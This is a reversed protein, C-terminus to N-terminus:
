PHYCAVKRITFGSGYSYNSSTTWGANQLNTVGTSNFFQVGRGINQDLWAIYSGPGTETYTPLRWGSGLSQCQTNATAANVSSDSLTHNFYAWQPYNSTLPGSDASVSVTIATTGTGASYGPAAAATATITCTGASTSATVTSGSVTCAGSASYSVTGQNGTTSLTTTGSTYISNSAATVTLTQAQLANVTINLSNILNAYQGSITCIGSSNGATVTSGSVTCAGTASYNVLDNLPSNLTTSENVYIVSKTATFTFSSKTVITNSPLSGSGQKKLTMGEALIESVLIFSFILIIFKIIKKM